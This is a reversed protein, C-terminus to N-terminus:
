HPSRRRICKCLGWSRVPKEVGLHVPLHLTLVLKPDEDLWFVERSGWGLIGEIGVATLCELREWFESAPSLLQRKANRRKTGNIGKTAKTLSRGATARTTKVKRGNPGSPGSDAKTVKRGEAVKWASRM